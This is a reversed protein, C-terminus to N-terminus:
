FVWPKLHTQLGRYSISPCAEHAQGKGWMEAEKLKGPYVETWSLVNFLACRLM